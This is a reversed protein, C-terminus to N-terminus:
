FLAMLAPDGGVASTNVSITKEVALRLLRQELPECGILTVLGSGRRTLWRQVAKEMERAGVVMVAQTDSSLCVTQLDELTDLCVAPLTREPIDEAQGASWCSMLEEFRRHHVSATFVTVQCGALLAAMTSIVAEKLSGTEGVLIATAGRPELRLQNFEGVPGPLVRPNLYGCSVLENLKRLEPLAESLLTQVWVEPQRQWLRMSERFALLRPAVAPDEVCVAGLATGAGPYMGWSAEAPGAVPFHVLRQLYHPGGAKPGTGSLGRGGFPQAGVVAGIMSRNVYINGVRARQIIREATADIRSHIGLTLGYGLRNIQEIVKDLDKAAYRIVHVVPGFAEEALVSLDSIEYLHPAFFTGQLDEPLECRYVLKAWSKADARVTLGTQVAPPELMQRHPSLNNLYDCHLQLRTCAERDIMPGIDTALLAPDGIVLEQMAGALMTLIGDAIDEQVFLIRLASCRQGASHFASRVVDDIVQEPLATSDVIMANQGATEAILPLGVDPRDALAQALQQGTATSGTFLVGQIREDPLLQGGVLKGPALVVQLVDAPFGCSEMLELVKLAILNVQGAPKALVTNGALLAASVQGLFIALPFNWPSICLLVGRATLDTRALLVEAQNAYYRCFDVAERVEALADALTKGAEKICLGVLAARQQELTDALRRFSEARVQVPAASWHVFAAEARELKQRLVGADDTPVQGVQEQVNAPNCVLRVGPQPIQQAALTQWENWWSHLGAQLSLLEARDTLDLGRSNKRQLPKEGLLYLDEPLPIDPHRVAPRASLTDLPDELLVSVSIDSNLMRNVFSSNAGNELLRRVLYALLDAQEGVPAYVRCPVPEADMVQSYLSEGMGQLRQFEYGKRYLGPNGAASSTLRDLELITAVTYANHTGFQPYIFERYGLLKEVCAQYCVDTAAKRTFVPYDRCGQEQTTKIETDWYAGKVLRVVIKRQAQQALAHVWDILALARKQYSQIALGFGQWDGLESDCFVQEIIDLSLDLRAAEEADITMGINYRRALLALEKVRPVLEAFVSARHAYHYRPHLASLKISIGSATTADVSGRGDAATAAAQAQGLAEIADCYRKWYRSADARTRASEGLMDYSFRYRQLHTQRSKKMAEAISKGLVFHQSMLNMAARMAARIVPEGLRVLISMLTHQLLNDRHPVHTCHHFRVGPALEDEQRAYDTLKGTLLLGWASANVFVSDRKGLHESWQGQALKDRILRNMTYKDPVRLLAEALCMLAVGEDTSLSFENLLEDVATRIGSTQRIREVWLRAQAKIRMRSQEDLDTIALLQQVAEVEDLRYRRSIERRAEALPSGSTTDLLAFDDVGAPLVFATQCHPPTSDPKTLSM